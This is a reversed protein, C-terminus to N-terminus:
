FAIFIIDHACQQLLLVSSYFVMLYLRTHLLHRHLRIGNKNKSVNPWLTPNCNEKDKHCYYLTLRFFLSFFFGFLFCIKSVNVYIVHRLSNLILRLISAIKRTNYITNIPYKNYM